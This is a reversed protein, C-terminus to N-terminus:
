VKKNEQLQKCPVLEKFRYAMNAGTTQDTYECVTVKVYSAAALEPLVPYRLLRPIRVEAFDGLRAAKGIQELQASELRKGFLLYRRTVPKCTDLCEEKSQNLTPTYAKDGTYVVYVHNTQKEWRLEGFTNFIRGSTYSAIDIGTQLESFLLLDQRLAPSVLTRPLKELLLLTVQNRSTYSSTSFAKIFAAFDEHQVRGGLLLEQTARSM